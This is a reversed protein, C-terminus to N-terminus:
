RRPLLRTGPRSTRRTSRNTNVVVVSPTPTGSVVPTVTPTPSPTGDTPRLVPTFLPTPTTGPAPPNAPIPTSTPVPSPPVVPTSPVPTPTPTATVPPRTPPQTPPPQTPPPQTPPPQTPPPTPAPSSGGTGGCASPITGFLSQVTATVDVAARGSQVMADKIRQNMPWPWLPTSTLNGDRYAYCLSAGRGSSWLNDGAPYATASTSGTLINNPSWDPHISSAV